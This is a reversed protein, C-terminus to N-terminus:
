IMYFELIFGLLVQLEEVNFEDQNVDTQSEEKIRGREMPPYTIVQKSQEDCEKEDLSEEKIVNRPIPHYSIIPELDELYIVLNLFLVYTILIFLM